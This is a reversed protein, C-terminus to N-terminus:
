HFISNYEMEDALYNAADWEGKTGFFRGKALEGNEEDYSTFIINSLNETVNYIYDYDIELIPSPTDAKVIRDEPVILLIANLVFLLTVFLVFKRKRM